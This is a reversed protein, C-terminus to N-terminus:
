KFFPVGPIVELVDHLFPGKFVYNEPFETVSADIVPEGVVAVNELGLRIFHDFTYKFGPERVRLAFYSDIRYGM